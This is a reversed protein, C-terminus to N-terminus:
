RMIGTRSRKHRVAAHSGRRRRAIMVPSRPRVGCPGHIEVDVDLGVATLHVDVVALQHLRDEDLAPVAQDITEVAGVDHQDVRAGDALFGVLLDVPAQLLEFALARRAAALQGDPDEAAHRLVQLLVQDVPVVLDVEDRPRIRVPMQRLQDIRRAARRHRVARGQLFRRELERGGLGVGADVGHATAADVRPDGDHAPAVIHARETDHGVRAAALTGAVGFPDDVFHAGQHAVAVLLHRQEPL